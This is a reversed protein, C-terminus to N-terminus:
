QCIGDQAVRMTQSVENGINDTEIVSVMQM